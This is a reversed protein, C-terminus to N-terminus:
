QFRLRGTWNSTRSEFEYVATRKPKPRSSEFRRIASVADREAVGSYDRLVGRKPRVVLM